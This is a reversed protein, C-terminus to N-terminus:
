ELSMPDGSTMKVKHGESDLYDEYVTEGRADLAKLDRDFNQGLVKKEIFAMAGEKFSSLTLGYWSCMLKIKKDSYRGFYIDSWGPLRVYKDSVVVTHEIVDVGVKDSSNIAYWRPMLLKFETNACLRLSLTVENDVLSQQRNFRIPIYAYIDGAKVVIKDQIAQYDHGLVASSKDEVVEIKVERDYDTVRGIIKARLTFTSDRENTLAFPLISSETYRPNDETDGSELMAFFIGSEGSYTEIDDSCGVLSALTCILVIKTYFSRTFM